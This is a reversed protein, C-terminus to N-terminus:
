ICQCVMHISLVFIIVLVHFAVTTFMFMFLLFVNGVILAIFNTIKSQLMVSANLPRLVLNQVPQVLNSLFYVACVYPSYHCCCSEFGCRSLECM